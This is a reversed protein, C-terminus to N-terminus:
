DFMKLLTDVTDVVDWSLRNADEVLQLMANAFQDTKDKNAPSLIQYITKLKVQTEVDIALHKIFKIRNLVEERLKMAFEYPNNRALNKMPTVVNGKEQALNTAYNRSSAAYEATSPPILFPNNNGIGDNNSSDYKPPSCDLQGNYYRREFNSNRTGSPRITDVHIKPGGKPNPIFPSPDGLINQIANKIRVSENM